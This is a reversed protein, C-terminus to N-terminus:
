QSAVIRVEVCWEGAPATAAEPTSALIEAGGASTECRLSIAAPTGKPPIVTCSGGATFDANSVTGLSTGGAALAATAVKTTCQRGVYAYHHPTPTNSITLGGLAALAALPLPRM